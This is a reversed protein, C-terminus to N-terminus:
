HSTSWVIWVFMDIGTLGGDLSWSLNHQASSYEITEVYM